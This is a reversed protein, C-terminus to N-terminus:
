HAIVQIPFRFHGDVVLTYSGASVRTSSNPKDQNWTGSGAATDGPQLEAFGLAPCNFAAPGPWVNHKKANLIEFGISGCPGAQLATSTPGPAAGAYPAVYNCAKPSKNKVVFNVNLTQGPHLTRTNIAVLVQTTKKGCEWFSGSGIQVLKSSTGKSKTSTSSAVAAGARGGPGVAGTALAGVLAVMLCLGAVALRTCAVPRGFTANPM